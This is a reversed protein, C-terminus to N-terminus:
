RTGGNIYGSIFEKNQVRENQNQVANSVIKAPPLMDKPALVGTAIVV